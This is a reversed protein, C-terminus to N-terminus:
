KFVIDEDIDLDIERQGMMGQEVKLLGYKKYSSDCGNKQPMQQHLIMSNLQQNLLDSCVVSNNIESGLNAKIRNHEQQQKSQLMQQELSDNFAQQEELEKDSIVSLTTLDNTTDHRSNSESSNNQSANASDNIDLDQDSGVQTKQYKISPKIIQRKRNYKRKKKTGISRGANSTSNNNKNDKPQISILDLNPEQKCQITQEIMNQDAEYQNIATNQLMDFSNEIKIRKNPLQHSVNNPNISLLSNNFSHSFKLITQQQQNVYQAEQDRNQNANPVAEENKVYLEQYNLNQHPGRKKTLNSNLSNEKCALTNKFYKKKIEILRRIRDKQGLEREEMQEFREIFSKFKPEIQLDSFGSNNNLLNSTNVSLLKKLSIFIRQTDKHKIRLHIMLHTEESVASGCPCYFNVIQQLQLIEDISKLIQHPEFLLFLDYFIATLLYSRCTFSTKPDLQVQNTPDRLIQVYSELDNQIMKCAPIVQSLLYAPTQRQSQLPNGTTSTHNQFTQRLQDLASPQNNNQQNQQTQQEFTSSSATFDSSNNVTNQQHLQFQPNLLQGDNQVSTKTQDERLQDVNIPQFQTAQQLKQRFKVTLDVLEKEIEKIREQLIM